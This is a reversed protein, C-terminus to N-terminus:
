NNLRKKYLTRWGKVNLFDKEGIKPAVIYVGGITYENKINLSNIIKVKEDEPMLKYILSIHPKFNDISRKDTRQSLTQFLNRLTENVDFEIFVTKFFLESKSVKQTKITFPKQNAFVEDVASKIDEFGINTDGILTLHPTFVPSDNEKALNDIISSLEKEDNKQPVLWVSFCTDM